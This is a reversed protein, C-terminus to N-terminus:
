AFHKRTTTKKLTQQKPSQWIPRHMRPHGAAVVEVVAAAVTAVVAVVAVAAALPGGNHAEHLAQKHEKNRVGGRGASRQHLCRARGSYFSDNPTTGGGRGAISTQGYLVDYCRM